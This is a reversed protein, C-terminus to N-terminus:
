RHAVAIAAVGDIGPDGARIGTELIEQEGTGRRQDHHETRPPQFEDGKVKRCQEDDERDDFQRKRRLGVQHAQRRFHRRCREQQRDAHRRHEVQDRREVGEAPRLFILIGELGLVLAGFPQQEIQHRCRDRLAELVLRALHDGVIQRGDGDKEGVDDAEGGAGRRKGACRQDAEEIADKELEVPEGLLMPQLLDLRDAVGIHHGAAHRLRPRVVGARDGLHRQVHEIDHAFERVLEALLDGHADADVGTRRHSADDAFSLLEVVDPAVRHVDGGTHFRM